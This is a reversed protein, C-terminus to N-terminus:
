ESIIKRLNLHKFSTVTKGIKFVYMSPLRSTEVWLYIDKVRPHRGMRKKPRRTEEPRTSDQRQCMSAALDRADM